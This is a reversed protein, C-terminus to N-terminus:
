DRADDARNQMSAAARLEKRTRGGAARLLEVMAERYRRRVGIAYDLATLGDTTQANVDAGNDLLLEVVERRGRLRLAAKHLPTEDYAMTANVDAGHAILLQAAEVTCYDYQMCQGLVTRESIEANPPPEIRHEEQHQDETVPGM